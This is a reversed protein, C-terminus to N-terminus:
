RRVSIKKGGLVFPEARVEVLSEFYGTWPAYFSYEEGINNPIRVSSDYDSDAKDLTEVVKKTLEIFTSSNSEVTKTIVFHVGPRIPPMYSIICRASLRNLDLLFVNMDSNTANQLEVCSGIRIPTTVIGGIKLLMDRSRLASM